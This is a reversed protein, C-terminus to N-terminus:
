APGSLVPEPDSGCCIVAARALAARRDALAVVLEPDTALAVFAARSPYWVAIVDDYRDSADGIVTTQAEADWLVKGGLRDLVALAVEGYRAYAERGTVDPSGGGPPEGEYAARERYRNLNLMVVPGDDPTGALATIEALQQEDPEIPM